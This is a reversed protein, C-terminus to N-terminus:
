TGKDPGFKRIRRWGDPDPTGRIWLGFAGKHQGMAAGLAAGVVLVGALVIFWSEVAFVVGVLGYKEENSAIERPMIVSSLLTAIVQAIATVVAGPLLARWAVRGGLLLFPTWWWLLFGLAASFAISISPRHILHAIGGIVLLYCILGAFWVVTRWAGRLGLKPLKWAYQYVRQLARTFATASGIVVLFSIATIDNQLESRDDILHQVTDATDGTIGFNNRINNLVADASRSPLFAYVVLLLPVMALFAQAALVVSSEVLRVALLRDLLGRLREIVSEVFDSIRHRM